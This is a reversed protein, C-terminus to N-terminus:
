GKWGQISRLQKDLGLPEQMPLDESSDGKLQEVPNETSRAVNETIEQLETDGANAVDTTSPMEEEVRNLIVFQQPTPKGGPMDFSLDRLRNKGLIKYIEGVTKIRGKNYTLPKDMGKHYLEGNRIEFM